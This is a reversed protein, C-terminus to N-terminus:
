PKPLASGNRPSIGQYLLVGLSLGYEYKPRFVQAKASSVTAIMVIATILLPLASAENSM